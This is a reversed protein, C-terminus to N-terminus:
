LSDERIKDTSKQNDTKGIDYKYYENITFFFLIIAISIFCMSAVVANSTAVHPISYCHQATLNSTWIVSVLFVIVGLSLGYFRYKSLVLFTKKMRWYYSIWSGVLLVLASISWSIWVLISWEGNLADKHMTHLMDYLLYLGISYIILLKVLFMFLTKM